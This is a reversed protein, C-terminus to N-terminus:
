NPNRSLLWVFFPGGLLSTIVGVPIEVPAILMRAVTDCLVLFAGGGIICAPTLDFHEAGFILRMIHPIILGVFGIPGCAAVVAGASISVALFIVRRVREVDVGRGIAIEDGTILINLENRMLLIVAIGAIGAIGLQIAQEYGIVTLTGMMWRVMTFTNSHDSIYQMLMILASFFFNVAVGTLLMSVVTFGHRSRALSYVLVVSLMAGGAAFLQTSSIGIFTFLLGLKIALVAGFAAGGSVGLTYPDALKNRFLAQFAMGSISLVAGVIFACIVRPLRIDRFIMENTSLNDNGLSHFAESPSIPNTGIFPAGIMIAASVLILLIYKPRTSKTM